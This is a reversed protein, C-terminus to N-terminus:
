AAEGLSHFIGKIENIETEEKDKLFLFSGRHLFAIRDALEYGEEIL